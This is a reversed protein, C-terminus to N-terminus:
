GNWCSSCIRGAGPHGAPQLKELQAGGAENWLKKERRHGGNMALGQLQNMIRTRMQVM